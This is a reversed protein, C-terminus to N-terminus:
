AELATQAEEYSQFDAAAGAKTKAIVEDAMAEMADAYVKARPDEEPVPDTAPQKSDEAPALEEFAPARETKPDEGPCGLLGLLLAASLGATRSPSAM